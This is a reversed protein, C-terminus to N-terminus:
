LWSSIMYGWCERCPHWENLSQGGDVLFLAGNMCVLNDKPESLSVRRGVSGFGNYAWWACPGTAFRLAMKAQMGKFTNWDTVMSSRPPCREMLLSGWPCPESPLCQLKQPNTQPQPRSLVKPQTISSSTNFKRSLIAACLSMWVKIHCGDTEWTWVKSVEPCAHALRYPHIASQHWLFPYVVRPWFPGSIRCTM